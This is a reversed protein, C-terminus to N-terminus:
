MRDLCEKGDITDAGEGGSITDNVLGGDHADAGDGGTVILSIQSADGTLTLREDAATVTSGDLESADIEVSTQTTAKFYTDLEQVTAQVMTGNDNLVVRDGDAVTTGAATTDGDLINLETGTTTIATAGIELANVKVTGAFTAKKDDAITLATALNNASSGSSGAGDAVQFVISGGTGTGTGQGANITLNKGATDTGSVAASGITANAGNGLTIDSGTVTLDTGVVVSGSGNPTLSINGNAGDTIQRKYM